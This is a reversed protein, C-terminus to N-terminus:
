PLKFPALLIISLYCSETFLIFRSWEWIPRKLRLNDRFELEASVFVWAEFQKWHVHFRRKNIVTWHMQHTTSTTINSSEKCCWPRPVTSIFHFGCYVLDNVTDWIFKDVITITLHLTLKLQLCMRLVCGRPDKPTQLGWETLFSLVVENGPTGVFKKLRYWFKLKYILIQIASLHECM